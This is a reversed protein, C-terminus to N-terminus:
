FKHRMGLAVYEQASGNAGAFGYSSISAQAQSGAGDQQGTAKQWAGVLYVDTRKSLSYDAGLSVQNYKASSNGSGKTYSYGIGTLLAPTAQYTAFVNGTNYKQTQGFSSASDATYQANSYSAGVNVPGITYQGAVRAIKLSAASTYAGNVPGNFVSDTTTNTATTTAGSFDRVGNTVKGGNYYQYSAAVAIPGNTYALAAGWARRDGFSGAQNGFAYLGEFQFGAWVPSAYKVSNNVRVSNDYNDVDGPTAFVSGFYNDGTMGQVLDTDPVYQRGLTVTGYADNQLGVYAQRNFERGGQGLRGDNPNFGNELQFIAKLGGGLDEAGTLGWRSGQLNGSVTSWQNKGGQNHLFTMSEDIVGYLTVSSQAHAASTAALVGLSIASLVLRKM